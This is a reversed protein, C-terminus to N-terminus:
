LTFNIMKWPQLSCKRSVNWESNSHSPGSVGDRDCMKLSRLHWCTPTTKEAQAAPLHKRSFILQNWKAASLTDQQSGRGGLFGSVPIQDPSSDAFLKPNKDKTTTVRHGLGVEISCMSINNLFKRNNVTQRSTASLLPLQTKKLSKNLLFKYPM